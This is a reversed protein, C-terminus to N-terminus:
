GRRGLARLLEAGELVGAAGDYDNCDHDGDDYYQEDYDNCDYDGDDYYQEADCQQCIRDLEPRSLISPLATFSEGCVYCRMEVTLQRQPRVPQPCCSQCLQVADRWCPVPLKEWCGACWSNPGFM